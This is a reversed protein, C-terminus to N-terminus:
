TTKTSSGPLVKRWADTQTVDFRYVHKLVFLLVVLIFLPVYVHGLTFPM